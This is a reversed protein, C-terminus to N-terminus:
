NLPASYISINRDTNEISLDGYLVYIRDKLITLAKIAFFDDTNDLNDTIPTITTDITNYIIFDTNIKIVNGSNAVTETLYGIYILHEYKSAYSFLPTEPLNFSTIVGNNIDVIYRENYIVNRTRERGWFIYLKDNVIETSSYYRATPLTAIEQIENTLFNYSMVKSLDEPTIIDGGVVFGLDDQVSFGFRTLSLGHEIVSNPNGNPNLPYKNIHEGGYVILENDIINLKKTLFQEQNFYNRVM